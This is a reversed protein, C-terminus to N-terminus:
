SSNWSMVRWAGDKQALEVSIAYLQVDGKKLITEIRFSTEQPTITVIGQYEGVPVPWHDFAEHYSNQKTKDDETKINKCCAIGYQALAQATRLQSTQEVRDLALEYLLTSSRLATTVVITVVTIIILVVILATGAVNKRFEM